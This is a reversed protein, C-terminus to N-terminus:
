SHVSAEKGLSYFGINQGKFNLRLPDILHGKQIAYDALSEVWSIGRVPYLPEDIICCPLLLFGTNYKTAADIIKINCGHAHLGILLDFNEAMSPEFQGDIRPVNAEFPIIARKGTIIDKHKHLLAQNEPDIVTADWGSERLLYTLLGKGGGIDAVRCPKINHILWQHLLQFRFTKMRPTKRNDETSHTLLTNIKPLPSNDTASTNIQRSCIALEILKHHLQDVKKRDKPKAMM